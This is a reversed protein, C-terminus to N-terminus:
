EQAPVVRSQRTAVGHMRIVERLLDKQFNQTKAKFEFTLNIVELTRELAKAFREPDSILKVKSLALYLSRRDSPSFYASWNTGSHKIANHDLESLWNARGWKLGAPLKELILYYDQDSLFDAKVVFDEIAGLLVFQDDTMTFMVELERLPKRARRNHAEQVQATERRKKEAQELEQKQSQLRAREDQLRKLEAKTVAGQTNFTLAAKGIARKRAWRSVFNTSPFVKDAASSDQALILYAVLNKLLATREAGPTGLIARIAEYEPPRLRYLERIKAVTKMNEVTPAPLEAPLEWVIEELFREVSEPLVEGSRLSEVFMAASRRDGYGKKAFARAIFEWIFPQDLHPATVGIQRIAETDAASLELGQSQLERLGTELELRLVAWRSRDLKGLSGQYVPYLSFVHNCRLAVSLEPGQARAKPAFACASLAAAAFVFRLALSASVLPM